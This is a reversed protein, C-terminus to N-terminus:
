VGIATRIAIAPHSRLPWDSRKRATSTIAVGLSATSRAYADAMNGAGAEGRASIFRVAGRQAFADLIPMNHISIVGFAVTVGMDALARAIADGVSETAPLAAPIEVPKSAAATPNM